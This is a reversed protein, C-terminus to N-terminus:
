ENRKGYNPQLTVRVGHADAVFLLQTGDKWTLGFYDTTRDGTIGMVGKSLLHAHFSDAGVETGPTNLDAPKEDTITLRM